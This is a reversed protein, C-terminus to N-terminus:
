TATSSSSSDPSPRSKVRPAVQNRGNDKASYLHLDAQRLLDNVSDAQAITCVGASLTVPLRSDNFDFRTEAVEMRIREALTLAQLLSTDPLLVLFEEGGWRAAVDTQRIVNTLLSSFRRLVEDGADHGYDDNVQKFLDLDILVISFHHGSRQYRSFEQTLRSQMDRRNALGTLEDTRAAQEHALALTMLENRAKLRGSELIYCFLAEFSITAFFRVKFDTSYEATVGPLQPFQFVIMAVLLCGLLLALGTRLGTLYFLLPPFVYIWLPGTNSEGGTAALYVFLLAVLGLIVSKQLTRNRTKWSVVINLAFLAAFAWLAWAHNYHEAYWAKAGIGGLFMLAALTIWNLVRTERNEDNDGVSQLPPTDIETM